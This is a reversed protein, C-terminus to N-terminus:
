LGVGACGLLRARIGLVFMQQLTAPSLAAPFLATKAFTGRAFNATGADAAGINLELANNALTSNTVTGSVDRFGNVADGMYLSSAGVNKVWAGFTTLGATVAVTATLIDQVSNRRGKLRGSADTRFIYAGSGKDAISVDNTAALNFWACITLVDGLDLAARDACMGYGTSGNFTVATDLDSRLLGAVGLTSGGRYSGATGGVTDTMTTGSPETHRFYAAPSNALVFDDYVSM